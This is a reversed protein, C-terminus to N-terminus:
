VGASPQEKPLAAFDIVDMESLREELLPTTKKSKSDIVWTPRDGRIALADAVHDGLTPPAVGCFGLRIVMLGKGDMLSEINLPQVEQGIEEKGRLSSRKIDLDTVYKVPSIDVVNKSHLAAALATHKLRPCIDKKWDANRICYSQNRSLHPLEKSSLGANYVREGVIRCVQRRVSCMCPTAFSGGKEDTHFTAGHGHCATCNKQDAYLRDLTTTM